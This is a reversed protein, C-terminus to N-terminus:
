TCPRLNCTFAFNSLLEDYTLKLLQFDRFALTPDVATLGPDLQVARSLSEAVVGALEVGALGGGVVAVRGGGGGSSMAKVGNIAAAMRQADELTSMPIAHERAGPVGIDSSATGVAVVLWDYEVKEGSELVVAGGGSSGVSGDRMAMPASPEIHKAVGRQFGVGTPALLETISPRLNFNFAFNSLL